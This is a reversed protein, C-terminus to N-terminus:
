PNTNAIGRVNTLGDTWCLCLAMRLDCCSLTLLALDHSKPILTVRSPAATSALAFPVSLFTTATKAFVLLFIDTCTLCFKCWELLAFGALIGIAFLAGGNAATVEQNLSFMIVIGYIIQSSPMASIGVFRGYGGDTELMAGIAAQGAIACGTISGVAGLAMAGYIGVWGLAIVLETM